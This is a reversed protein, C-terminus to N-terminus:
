LPLFLEMFTPGLYFRLNDFRGGKSYKGRFEKGEFLYEIGSVDQGILWLQYKLLNGAFLIIGFAFLYELSTWFWFHARETDGVAFDGNYMAYCARFCFATFM